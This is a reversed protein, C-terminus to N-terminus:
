ESRDEGRSLLWWLTVFMAIFVVTGQFFKTRRTKSHDTSKVRITARGSGEDTIREFTPLFKM